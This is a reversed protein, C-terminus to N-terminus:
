MILIVGIFMMAIAILKLAVASKGIEERLIRPYFISLAVAFALVFFPQISAMANVLTVYGVSAAFTFLLVGIVTLLESLSIVGAVRKGNKKLSSRMHSFGFFFVPVLMFVTGIKVYSFVTWFDAFGLLYKTIVSYLALSLSALIMLWLARGSSFRLGKSSTLIAGIIIMFIGLYKMPTFIEGLFAAAIIVVFLPSLYFLPVVRSIEEIMVARFYLINGSIYFTGAIFALFVNFYSLQSFGNFLYVLLSALLGIIGMIIVNVLPNKVWETLVFKDIINSATWMLAAMVSFLIWLEM